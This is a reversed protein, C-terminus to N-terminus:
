KNEKYKKILEEYDKETGIGDEIAQEIARQIPDSEKEILPVINISFYDLPTLMGLQYGEGSRTLSNIRNYIAHANSDNLDYTRYSVHVGKINNLDKFMCQTLYKIDIDKNLGYKRFHKMLHGPSAFLKNNYIIIKKKMKDIEM